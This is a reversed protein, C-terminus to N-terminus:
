DALERLRCTQWSVAIGLFAPNHCLTSVFGFLSFCIWALFLAYSLGLPVWRVKEFNSHGIESEM